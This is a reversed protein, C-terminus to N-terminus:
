LPPDTHQGKWSRTVALMGPSTVIDNWERGRLDCPEEGEMKLFLHRGRLPFRPVANLACWSLELDNSKLIGIKIM